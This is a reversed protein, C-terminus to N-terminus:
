ALCAINLFLFINCTCTGPIDNEHIFHLTKASTFGKNSLLDQYQLLGSDVNALWESISTCTAM